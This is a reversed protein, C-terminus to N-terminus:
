KLIFVFTMKGRQEVAADVKSTYKTQKAASVALDFLYQSGTNSEALNPQARTVKGYRDVFIDVVVTGEEKTTEISAARLLGRGSLEWSGGGGGLVGRGTPRGNATGENGTGGSTGQSGGNSAKTDDGKSGKYMALPNPKKPEEVPKEVVKEETPKTPEPKKKTEVPKTTNKKAKTEKPVAVESDNETVAEDTATPQPTSTPKPENMEEQVKNNAPAPEPARVSGSGTKTTGLSTLAMEFGEEEPLPDPQSLGFFLFVLLLVLHFVFTGIAAKKKDPTDFFSM